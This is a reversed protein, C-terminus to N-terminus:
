HSKQSNIPAQAGRPNSDAEGYEYTALRSWDYRMMDTVLARYLEMREEYPKAREPNPQFRKSTRTFARAKEEFDAFVGLAHGALLAAGLTGLEPQDVVDIPTMTLDAKLQTWWESRIGGGVGRFKDIRAGADRFRTVTYHLDYAISEMMAKVIDTGTTALTLGLFAGRLKNGGAWPVTAGSVHPIALVSGPRLGTAKLKHDTERLNFSVLGRAWNMAASGTPSLAYIAMRAKGPFPGISVGMRMLKSAEPFREVPLLMDEWSGSILCGTGAASVGSGLACCVVDNAGIGVKVEQGLGLQRAVGKRVIEISKGWPEVKPLLESRIKFQSLREPSWEHTRFDYVLYRGACSRDIVARGTLKLSFYEGWGLFYRAKKMVEPHNKEWWLLRCVPDMREPLHGCFEFWTEAPYQSLITKELGSERTDATMICPGLPKGNEDVPFAERMSASVGIGIPPDRKVRSVRTLKRLADAANAWVEDPDVEWAGPHPHHPTHPAEASGLLTGKLSYAAIKTGSSGVDIGILSM